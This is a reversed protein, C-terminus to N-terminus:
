APRGGAHVQAKNGLNSLLWLAVTALAIKILTSVYLFGGVWVVSLVIWTVYITRIFLAVPWPLNDNVFKHIGGFFRMVMRIPNNGWYDDFRRFQADDRRYSRWNHLNAALLCLAVFLWGGKFYPWIPSEDAGWLNWWAAHMEHATLAKAIAAKCRTVQEPNAPEQTTLYKCAEHQEAYAALVDDRTLADLPTPTAPQLGEGSSRVRGYPNCDLYLQKVEPSASKDLDQGSTFDTLAKMRASCSEALVKEVNIKTIETEYIIHQRWEQWGAFALVSIVAVKFLLMVAAGVRASALATRDFITALDNRITFVTGRAYSGIAMVSSLTGSLVGQGTPANALQGSSGLARAVLIQGIEAENYGAERLKEREAGLPSSAPKEDTEPTTM